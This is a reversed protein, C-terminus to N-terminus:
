RSQGGERGTVTAMVDSDDDLDLGGSSSGGGASGAPRPRSRTSARPTLRRAPSREGDRQAMRDLTSRRTTVRLTVCTTRCVGPWAGPETTSSLPGAAGCRRDVITGRRDTVALPCAPSDSVGRVPGGRVARGCRCILRGVSLDPKGVAATVQTHQQLARHATVLHWPPDNFRPKRQGVRPLAGVLRDDVVLCTWLSAARGSLRPTGHEWPLRGSRVPIRVLYPGQIPRHTPQAQGHAAAPGVYGGRL